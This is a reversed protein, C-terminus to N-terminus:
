SMENCFLFSSDYIRGSGVSSSSKKMPSGESVPLITELLLLEGLGASRLPEDLPKDTGDSRLLGEIDDSCPLYRWNM